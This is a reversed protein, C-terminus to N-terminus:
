YNVKIISFSQLTVLKKSKKRVHSPNKKVVYPLEEEVTKKVELPVQNPKTESKRLLNTMTGDKSQIQLYSGWPHCCCFGKEANKPETKTVSQTSNGM